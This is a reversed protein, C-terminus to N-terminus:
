STSISRAQRPKWRPRKWCRSASAPMWCSRWKACTPFWKNCFSLGSAPSNQPSWRCAPSTAAPALSARSWAPESRISRLAFVIPITATAQKAAAVGGGSTVIVDVKSRVLEAAIEPFLDSHGNAWRYAITVTRGDIWGLEHLRQIFAAVWPTWASATTTGFFGITPLKGPQQALTALPCAAAVGAVLAIFERRRM